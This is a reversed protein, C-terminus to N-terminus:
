YTLPKKRKTAQQKGCSSEQFKNNRRRYQDIEFKWILLKIKRFM